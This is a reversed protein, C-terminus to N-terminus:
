LQNSVIATGLGVIAVSGSTSMLNAISSNSAIDSQTGYASRLATVM